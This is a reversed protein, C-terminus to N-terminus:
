VPACGLAARCSSCAFPPGSLHLDFVAHRAGQARDRLRGTLEAPLEQVLTSLLAKTADAQPAGFVSWVPGTRSVSFM